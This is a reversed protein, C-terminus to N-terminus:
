LWPLRNGDPMKGFASINPCPGARASTSRVPLSGTRHSKTSRPLCTMAAGQMGSM